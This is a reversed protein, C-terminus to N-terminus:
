SSTTPSSIPVVLIAAITPKLFWNPLTSIKLIPLDSDKPTCRPTTAFMSCVMSDMLAAMRMADSLAFM